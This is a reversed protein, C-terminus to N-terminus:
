SYLMCIMKYFIQIYYHDLYKYKCSKNAGVKYNNPKTGNEV